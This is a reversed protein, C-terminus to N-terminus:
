LIKLFFLDHLYDKLSYLFGDIVSPWAVSFINVQYICSQMIVFAIFLQSFCSAETDSPIKIGTFILGIQNSCAIPLLCVYM